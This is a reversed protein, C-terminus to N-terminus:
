IFLLSVRPCTARMHSICVSHQKCFTLPLPLQSPGTTPVSSKLSAM